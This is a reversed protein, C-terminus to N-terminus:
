PSALVELGRELFRVRAVLLEDRRTVRDRLEGVGIGALDAALLGGGAALEEVGLRQDVRVRLRERPRDFPGVAPLVYAVPLEEEFFVAGTAVGRSPRREGRSHRRGFLAP